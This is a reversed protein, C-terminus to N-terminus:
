PALRGARLLATMVRGRLRDVRAAIEHGLAKDAAQRLTRLDAGDQSEDVAFSFGTLAGVYHGEVSVGGDKEVVAMLRDKQRLERMLVATRRDVFRQSM